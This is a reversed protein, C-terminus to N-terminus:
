VKKKATYLCDYRFFCVWLISPRVTTQQNIYAVYKLTCIAGNILGDHTNVSCSIAYVCNVALKLNIHLGSILEYRAWTKIKM